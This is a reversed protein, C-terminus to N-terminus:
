YPTQLPRIRYGGEGNYQKAESVRWLAYIPEDIDVINFDDPIDNQDEDKHPVFGPWM